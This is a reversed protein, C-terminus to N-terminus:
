EKPVDTLTINVTWKSQKNWKQKNDVESAKAINVYTEWSLLARPPPSLSIPHWLLDPWWPPHCRWAPSSLDASRRVFAVVAGNGHIRVPETQYAPSATTWAVSDRWPVGLTGCTRCRFTLLTGLTRRKSTMNEYPELHETRLTRRKSTM